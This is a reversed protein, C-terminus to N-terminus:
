PDLKRRYRSPSCGFRVSFRRSFYFPDCFGLRDSIVGIPEQGTRLMQEASFLVREDIYRGLPMGVERRFQRQLATPSLFLREALTRVTLDARLDSEILRLARCVPESYERIEGLAVGDLLPTVIGYLWTKLRVASMVDARRLEAVAREIEATQGPIVRVTGIASLLDFRDYRMLNLHVYLKEMAAPCGYSFTVGAPIVYVNGPLLEVTQGGVRVWGRGSRVAYVRTFPSCVGDSHWRDDLVAYALSSINMNLRDTEQLLRQSEKIDM